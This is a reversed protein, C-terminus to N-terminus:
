ANCLLICLLVLRRKFFFFRSRSNKRFLIIIIPIFVADSIHLIPPCLSFVVYLLVRPRVSDAVTEAAKEVYVLGHREEVVYLVFM